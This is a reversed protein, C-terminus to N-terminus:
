ARPACPAALGLCLGESSGGDGKGWPGLLRAAAAAVAPRAALRLLVLLLLLLGLANQSEFRPGSVAALAAGGAPTKDGDALPPASDSPLLRLPVRVCAVAGVAQM